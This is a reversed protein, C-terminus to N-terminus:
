KIFQQAAQRMKNLATSYVQFVRAKTVGLVDAMEQFSSGGLRPPLGAKRRFEPCALLALTIADETMKDPQDDHM